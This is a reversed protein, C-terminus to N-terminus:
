SEESETNVNKKRGKKQRESSTIYGMARWADVDTKNITVAKSGKYVKITELRM